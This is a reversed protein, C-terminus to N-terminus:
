SSTLRQHAREIQTQKASHSQYVDLMELRAASANKVLVDPWPTDSTGRGSKEHFGQAYDKVNEFLVAPGDTECIRRVIAGLELNWDVEVNVRALEGERELVELWERLDNYPM